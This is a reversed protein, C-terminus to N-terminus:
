CLSLSNKQQKTTAHFKTRLTAATKRELEPLMLYMLVFLTCLLFLVVFPFFALVSLCRLSDRLERAGKKM